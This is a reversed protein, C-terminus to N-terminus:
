YGSSGSASMPGRKTYFYIATASTLTALVVSAIMVDRYIDRQTSADDDNSNDQLPSFVSNETFHYDCYGNPFQPYGVM